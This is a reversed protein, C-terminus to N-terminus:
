QHARDIARNSAELSRWAEAKAQAAILQWRYKEEKNVAEKLALLHARYTEHAYAFAEREAMTTHGEKIADFFLQSKLTKRYEDMYVREAKAQAYKPAADRIFDLVKYIDIQASMM